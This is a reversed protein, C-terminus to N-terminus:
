RRDAGPGRAGSVEGDWPSAGLTLALPILGAARLDAEVAAVEGLGRPVAIGVDGGGAGSQKAAGRGEMVEALIELGRDEMPFGARRGLELLGLRLQTLAEAFAPPDVRNLAAEARDVGANSAAIWGDVWGPEAAVLARFRDIRERTSASAGTFAVLLPVAGPWPLPRLEPAGGTAAFAVAGGYASAAVDIGSGRGGQALTHARAALTFLAPPTLPIALARAAALVAAVTASASGGLGPKSASALQAEWGAAGVEGVLSSPGHAEQLAHLGAAVFAGAQPVGEWAIGGPRSEGRLRAM